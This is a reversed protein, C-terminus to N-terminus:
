LESHRAPDSQRARGALLLGAVQVIAGLIPPILLAATVRAEFGVPALLLLLTALAGVVWGMAYGTHAGQALSLPGSICMLGVLVSSGVIVAFNIGGIAYHSGVLAVLVEDGWLWATGAIVTGGLLVLGGLRAAAHAPRRADRFRVILLNQASMVGVVIPARVVIIAFAFAGVTRAPTSSSTAVLMLGFGSIMAATAISGTVAKSANGVLRRMSEDFAVGAGLRRRILPSVLLLTVGFPLAIAWAIASIDHTFQLVAVVAALRLLADTVVLLAIHGWAHIGYLAGGIYAVFVFGAPGVALPAILYGGSTGFAPFVWLVALLACVLLAVAATIAALRILPARPGSAQDAPRASRSVEQQIGALAGVALYTGSWVASFGASAAAGVVRAVVFTLVFGIVGAVVASGVVLSTSRGAAIPESM